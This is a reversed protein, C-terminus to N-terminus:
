GKNDTMPRITYGGSGVVRELEATDGTYTYERYINCGSWAWTAAYSMTPVKPYSVDYGRDYWVRTREADEPINLVSTGFMAEDTNKDYLGALDLLTAQFDEHYVPASSFTMAPKTEGKRKVMFIPTAARDPSADNHEGHDSTIVITSNDYLGLEKLQKIYKGLIELLYETEAMENMCPPHTGNLHQTIFYNSNNESESLRLNDDFDWNAYCVANDEFRVAGGFSISDAGSFRKLAFPLSRYLSLKCFNTFILSNDVSGMGLELGKVDRNKCNDFLGKYHEESDSEITYGNVVYDADHFRKFFERTRESEWATEYWDRGTLEISFDMGTLMQTISTPTSDFVSCTNTYMTFDEYGSFVEPKEDVLKKFYKNDVADLIFVVVNDKQSVTFQEEASMYCVNFTFAGSGASFITIILAIAQIAGLGAPLFVRLKEWVKEWKFATVVSMALIALWVIGTIVAFPIHEEWRMTEGDILKLNANLFMYQIYVCLSLGMFLAYLTKYAGERMASMIFAAALAAVLMAALLVFIFAQYPFGFDMANAFYSDSPLFVFFMFSLVGTPLLASLFRKGSFASPEFVLNVIIYFVPYLAFANLVIETICLSIKLSESVSEPLFPCMGTVWFFSVASTAAAALLGKAADMKGSPFYRWVAFALVAALVPAIFIGGAGWVACLVLAAGTTALFYAGLILLQRVTPKKRGSKVTNTEPENQSKIQSDQKSKM